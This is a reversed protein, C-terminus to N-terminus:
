ACQSKLPRLSTAAIVVIGSCLGGAALLSGRIRASERLQATEVPIAAIPPLDDQLDGSRVCMLAYNTAAFSGYPLL